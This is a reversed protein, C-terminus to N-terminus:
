VVKPHGKWLPTTGELPTNQHQAIPWLCKYPLTFHVPFTLYHLALVSVDGPSCLELVLVNKKTGM